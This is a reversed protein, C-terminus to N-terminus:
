LAASSWAWSTMTRIYGFVLIALSASFRKRWSATRRRWPSPPLTVEPLKEPSPRGASRGSAFASRLKDELLLGLLGAPITGVVLLWGLRGDTNDARSGVWAVRYIAKEKGRQVTVVDGPKVSNRIGNLRAGRPSVNLTCAMETKPRKEQDLVIIKVPLALPTRQERRKGM